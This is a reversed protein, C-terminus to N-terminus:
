RLGASQRLTSMWEDREEITQARLKFVRKSDAHSSRKRRNKDFFGKQVQVVHSEKASAPPIIEFGEGADRSQEIRCRTVCYM